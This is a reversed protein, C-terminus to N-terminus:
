QKFLSRLSSDDINSHPALWHIFERPSIHTPRSFEKKEVGSELGAQKGTNTIVKWTKTKM